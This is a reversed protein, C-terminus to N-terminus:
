YCANKYIKKNLKLLWTTCNFTLNESSQELRNPFSFSAWVKSSKYIYHIRAEWICIFTSTILIDKGKWLMKNDSCNYHIVSILWVAFSGRLYLTAQFSEDDRNKGSETYLVTIYQVKFFVFIFFGLSWFM